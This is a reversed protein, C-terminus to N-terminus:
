KNYTYFFSLEEDTESDYLIIYIEGNNWQKTKVENNFPVFATTNVIVKDNTYCNSSCEWSGAAIQENMGGNRNFAIRDIYFYDWKSDKVRVDFYPDANDAALVIVAENNASALVIHPDWVGNIEGTPATMVHNSSLPLTVGISRSYMRSSNDAAKKTYIYIDMTYNGASLDETVVNMFNTQKDFRKLVFQQSGQKKFVIMASDVQSMSIGQQQFSIVIDKEVSPHDGGPNNEKKCSSTISLLLAAFAVFSAYFKM